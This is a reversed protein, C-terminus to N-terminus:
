LQTIPVQPHMINTEKLLIGEAELIGLARVDSFGVMKGHERGRLGQLHSPCNPLTHGVEM